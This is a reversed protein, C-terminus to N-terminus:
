LPGLKETMIGQGEQSPLHKLTCRNLYNTIFSRSSPKSGLYREQLFDSENRYIRFDNLETKLPSFTCSETAIGGLAIRFM